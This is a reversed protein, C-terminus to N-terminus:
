LRLDCTISVPSKLVVPELLGKAKMEELERTIQKLDVFGNLWSLQAIAAYCTAQNAISETTIRSINQHPIALWTPIAIQLSGITSQM